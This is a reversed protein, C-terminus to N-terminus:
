EVDKTIEFNSQDATVERVERFFFKGKSFFGFNWSNSFWIEDFPTLCLPEISLLAISRCNLAVKEM